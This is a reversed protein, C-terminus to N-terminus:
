GGIGGLIGGTAGTSGSTDGSEPLTVNPINNNNQNNGVTNVLTCSGSITDGNAPNYDLVISRALGAVSLPCNFHNAGGGGNMVTVVPGAFLKDNGPGGSLIGSGLGGFLSDDGSAGAALGHGAGLTIIDNGNGGYVQDNIAGFVIDNGSRAFVLEGAGPFIIDDNNTGFCPALPACTITNGFRISSSPIQLGKIRDGLDRLNTTGVNSSSHANAFNTLLPFMGVFVILLSIVSAISIAKTPSSESYSQKL